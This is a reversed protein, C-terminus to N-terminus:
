SAQQRGVFAASFAVIIRIRSVQRGMRGLATSMSTSSCLRCLRGKESTGGEQTVAGRCRGARAAAATYLASLAATLPERSACPVVQGSHSVPELGSRVARPPRAVPHREPPSRLAPTWRRPSGRREIRERERCRSPPWSRAFGM